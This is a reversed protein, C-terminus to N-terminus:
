RDSSKADAELKRLLEKAFSPFQKADGYVEEAVKRNYTHVTLNRSKLFRLWSDVDDVLGEKAGSRIVQSPSGTEVGRLKLLRQMFKWCLEFTYEFRQIAGDRIFENTPQKLIEDLSEIALRLSSLDLM